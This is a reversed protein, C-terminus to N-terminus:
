TGLRRKPYERVGHDALESRVRPRRAITLSRETVEGAYDVLESRARNSALVEFGARALLKVEEIREEETHNVVVVIGGPRLMDHAHRAIREPLFHSRPLGWRLLTYELVFPFFMFVVDVGRDRLDLFDGVQYSVEAKDIARAFAEAHEKRTHLDSYLPNGDLEIGLLSVDRTKPDGASRLWRALAFGYRFDKSGVDVARLKGRGEISQLLTPSSVHRDLLDLVYLNERYVDRSSKAALRDLDYDQRLRRERRDLRSRRAGAYAFLDAKAENTHEVLGRSMFGLRRRMFFSLANLPSLAFTFRTMDLKKNVFLARLVLCVGACAAFVWPAVVAVSELRTGQAVCM